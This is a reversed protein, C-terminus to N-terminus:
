ALSFSSENHTKCTLFYMMENKCYLHTPRKRLITQPNTAIYCGCEPDLIHMKFGGHVYLTNCCIKVPINTKNKRREYERKKKQRNKEKM